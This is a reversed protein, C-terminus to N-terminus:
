SLGGAGQGKQFNYELVAELAVWYPEAATHLRICEKQLAVLQDYNGQQKKKDEEGMADFFGELRIVELEFRRLELNNCAPLLPNLRSQPIDSKKQIFQVYARHCDHLPNPITKLREILVELRLKETEFAETWEKLTLQNAADIDKQAEAIRKREMERQRDQELAEEFEKDQEQILVRPPDPPLHGPADDSLNAAQIAGQTELSAFFYRVISEVLAVLHGLIPVSEVCLIARHDPIAEHYALLEARSFWINTREIAM